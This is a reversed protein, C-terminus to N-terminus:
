PLSPGGTPNGLSGPNWPLSPTLQLNRLHSSTPSSSIHTYIYIYKMARCHNHHLTKKTSVVWFHVFMSRAITFIVSTEPNNQYILMYFYSVYVSNGLCFHVFQSVFKKKLVIWSRVYGSFDMQPPLDEAYRPSLLSQLTIEQDCRSCGLVILTCIMVKAMSTTVSTLGFRDFNFQHLMRWLGHFVLIRPIRYWGPDLGSVFM